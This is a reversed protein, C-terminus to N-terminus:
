SRLLGMRPRNLIPSHMLIENREKSRPLIPHSLALPSMSTSVFRIAMPKAVQLKAQNALRATPRIATRLATFMKTSKTTSSPTIFLPSLDHKLTYEQNIEVSNALNSIVNRSPRYSGSMRQRALHQYPSMRVLCPNCLYGVATFYYAVHM